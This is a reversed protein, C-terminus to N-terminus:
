QLVSIFIYNILSHLLPYVVAHEDKLTYCVYYGVGQQRYFKYQM